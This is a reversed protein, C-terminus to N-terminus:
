LIVHVKPRVRFSPLRNTSTFMPASMIMSNSRRLWRAAPITSHNPHHLPPEPSFLSPELSPLSHDFITPSAGLAPSPPDSPASEITASPSPDSVTQQASPSTPIIHDFPSPPSQKNPPTSDFPFEPAFVRTVTNAKSSSGEDQNNLLSLLQKLQTESLSVTPRVEANHSVESVQNAASFGKHQNSNPGSNMRAKLHGSPYGHLQFCKQVWHSIEGYHTCQPRGRGSGFRCRDQDFRREGESRVNQPQSSRNAPSQYSRNTGASFNSKGGYNNHRVAM